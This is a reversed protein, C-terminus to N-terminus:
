GSGSAKKSENPQDSEKHQDSQTEPGKKDASDSSGKSSSSCPNRHNMLKDWASKIFGQGKQTNDAKDTSTKNSSSLFVNAQNSHCLRVYSAKKGM